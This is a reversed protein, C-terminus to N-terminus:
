ENDGETGENGAAAAAAADLEEIRAEAARKVTVRSDGSATALLERDETKEIIEILEAATPENGGADGGNGKDGNDAAKKAAPAKGKGVEFIGAEIKIQAHPHELFKAAKDEDFKNLGPQLTVGNMTYIRPKTNKITVIKSM